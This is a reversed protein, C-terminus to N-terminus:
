LRIRGRMAVRRAFGIRCAGRGLQPTASGSGRVLRVGRHLAGAVGAALLLDEAGSHGALSAVEEAGRAPAEVGEEPGGVARPAREAFGAEPLRGRPGLRVGM